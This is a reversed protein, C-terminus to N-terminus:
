MSTVPNNSCLRVFKQATELNIGDVLKAISEYADEFATDPPGICCLCGRKPLGDKGLIPQDLGGKTRIVTVPDVDNAQQGDARAASVSQAVVWEGNKRTAPATWKGNTVIWNVGLFPAPPEDDCAGEGCTAM